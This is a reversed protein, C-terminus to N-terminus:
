GPGTAALVRAAADLSSGVYGGGFLNVHALLYYLQYLDRKFGRYAPSIPRLTEYGEQFGPPFNGFLEMMALDVEGDGRYVAPDILVPNGTADPFYNGSWLDGHLLAPGLVESGPLCTEVRSLLEDLIRGDRGGFFGRDRAWRLQPELRMDRWFAGWSSAELNEQPLSGIFNRRHWGFLPQDDERKPKLPGVGPPSAAPGAIASAHLRALGEGVRRGYGVGPPGRPVFELLLWGPAAPTGEGGWAIVEPVRLAGPAALARLGDAEARFMEGPASGNWKLFFPQGGDTELRASPNICGGGPSSGVRLSVPRDQHEELSSAVQALVPPPVTM